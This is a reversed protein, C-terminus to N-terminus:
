WSYSWAIKMGEPLPAIDFAYLEQMSEANGSGTLDSYAGVLSILIIFGLASGTASGGSKSFALTLGSTAASTLELYGRIRRLQRYRAMEARITERTTSDLIRKRQEAPIKADEMQKAFLRLRKEEQTLGDGHYLLSAGHAVAAASLVQILTYGLKPFPEKSSIGLGVSLGLGLGGGVMYSLADQHVHEAHKDARELFLAYQGGGEAPFSASPVLMAFVLCLAKM